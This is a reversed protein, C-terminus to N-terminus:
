LPKKEHSLVEWTGDHEFNRARSTRSEESAPAFITTSSGYPLQGDLPTQGVIFAEQCAM